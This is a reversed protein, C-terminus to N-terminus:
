EEGLKRIAAARNLLLLRHETSLTEYHETVVKAAEELVIARAVACAARAEALCGPECCTEPPFSYATGEIVVACSPEGRYACKEACIAKAVREVLDSM